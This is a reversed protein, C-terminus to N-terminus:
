LCAGDCGPFIQKSIYKIDSHKILMFVQMCSSSMLDRMHTSPDSSPCDPLTVLVRLWEAVEGSRSAGLFCCFDRRRHVAQEKM